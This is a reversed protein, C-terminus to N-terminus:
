ARNYQTWLIGLQEIDHAQEALKIEAYISARKANRTEIEPSDQFEPEQYTGCLQQISRARNKMGLTIRFDPIMILEEILVSSV